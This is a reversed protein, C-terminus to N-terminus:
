EAQDLVNYCLTFPAHILDSPHTDGLNPPAPQQGAVAQEGPRGVVAVRPDHAEHDVMYLPTTSM